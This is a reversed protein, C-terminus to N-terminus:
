KYPGQLPIKVEMPETIEGAKRYFKLKSDTEVGQKEFGVGSVQVLSEGTVKTRIVDNAVISYLTKEIENASLSFDLASKLNGNAAQEVYDIVHEPLGRKELKEKLYGLLKTTDKVTYQGDIKAIGLDKYLKELKLTIQKEVLSEYNDVLTKARNNKPTTYDVDFSNVSFDNINM